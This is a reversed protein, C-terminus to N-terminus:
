ILQELGDRFTHAEVAAWEGMHELRIVHEVPVAAVLVSQLFM